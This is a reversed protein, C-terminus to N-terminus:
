PAGRTGRGARGSLYSRYPDVVFRGRLAERGLLMRFGMAARDALTVEIPWTEGFLTAPTVIVPRLTEAGASSRVSRHDLVNAEAMVTESEDRQRPAVRFRVREAGGVRFVEVALAHLASSRAGTDLKAKVIAIGLDPLGAWERWGLIPREAAARMGM